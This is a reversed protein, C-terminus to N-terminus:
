LPTASLGASIVQSGVLLRGYAVPVPNGQAATNVAGDFAFSPKNEPRDSTGEMKPTPALMQSVGSLIMSAGALVYGSGSTLYAGFTAFDGTFYGWALLAVGAIISGIGDEAGAVVPVIRVVDQAPMPLDQPECATRERGVLVRYGPATNRALYERFGKHNAALARLAEAPTRIAFRHVRGFAKGLHGYLMVTIM